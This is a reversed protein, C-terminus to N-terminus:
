PKEPYLRPLDAAVAYHMVAVVAKLTLWGSPELVGPVGGAPLSSPVRIMRRWRAGADQTRQLRALAPGMGLTLPMGARALVWLIEASDTRGLCPHGLRTPRDGKAALARELSAVARESLVERSGQDCVILAALLAVATM